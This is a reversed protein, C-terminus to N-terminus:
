SFLKDAIDSVDYLKGSAIDLTVNYLTNMNYNYSYVFLLAIIATRKNGDQFPHNLILSRFLSAALLDDTGYYNNDQVSLASKARDESILSYPENYAKCIFENFKCLTEFTLYKM